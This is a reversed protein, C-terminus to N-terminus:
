VKNKKEVLKNDEIEYILDCYKEFESNHTTYILSNGKIKIFDDIYKELINQNKKDLSDFPEDLILYKPKEMIAQIIRMKQKMGLSYCKYKKNIDKEMNFLSVFKMIDEESIKKNIRALYKLNELGSLDNLFEPRNIFVGANPIFDFDKGIIKKDVIVKGSDPKSYGVIMKLLVSKGSGNIGKILIKKNEDFKISLNEFIVVDKYKKYVNKIEIM